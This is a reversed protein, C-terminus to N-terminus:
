KSPRPILVKLVGKEPDIMNWLSYDGDRDGNADINITGSVGSFSSYYM